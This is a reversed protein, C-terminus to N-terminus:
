QMVIIVEEKEYQEIIARYWCEDESFLAACVDGPGFFVPTFNNKLESTKQNLQEFM